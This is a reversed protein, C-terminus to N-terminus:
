GRADDHHNIDEGPFTAAWQSEIRELWERAEGQDFMQPMQLAANARRWRLRLVDRAHDKNVIM